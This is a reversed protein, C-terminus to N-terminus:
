DEKAELSAVGGEHWEDDDFIDPLKSPDDAIVWGVGGCEDCEIFVAFDPDDWCYRGEYHGGEGGCAGCTEKYTPQSM